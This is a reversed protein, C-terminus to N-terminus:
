TLILHPPDLVTLRKLNFCIAQMFAAFQNKAVGLYRVRKNRKSFVSEYPSRIKSYWRDLDRNKENMNNKKIAALHCQNKAAAQKAPQTCYGKDAYIAGQSPCVHKLGQADTLNAPTIAVKNILGSQMEVSTHQKWGYWFKDNGKCGIRAQKDHAVKPLIKNNLREYKAKIAKDREKWLTAKTILHTADVFSFVASMLGAAQLQARLDAFIKSLLKTGIRKRAMCFVTHDPTIEALGFDCFWKAANNEQIFRELARDSLDEMFQLLLCKFLRFLGDGKHPNRKEIKKMQKKVFNFSWRAKFQRYTHTLPVLDELNIMELQSM